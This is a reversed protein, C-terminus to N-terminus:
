SGCPPCSSSFAGSVTSSPLSGRWSRSPAACFTSVAGTRFYEGLFISIAISFPISILLALFSTLLTGALFPLAGFTETTADWVRGIFFFVGFQRIAPLATVLLTAFIALLLLVILLGSGALIVNFRKESDDTSSSARQKGTDM